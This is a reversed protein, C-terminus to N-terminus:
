PAVWRLWHAAALCILISYIVGVMAARHRRFGGGVPPAPPRLSAPTSEPHVVAMDTGSARISCRYLMDAMINAFLFFNGADGPFGRIVPFDRTVVANM